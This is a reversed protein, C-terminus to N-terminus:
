IDSKIYYRYTAIDIYSDGIQIDESIVDEPNGEGQYSNKDLVNVWGTNSTTNELNLNYYLTPNDEDTYDIYFAYKPAKIVGEPNGEGNLSGKTNMGVWGTSTTADGKLKVYLTSAKTNLCFSGRAATIFTEPSTSHRILQTTM